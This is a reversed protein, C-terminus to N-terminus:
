FIFYKEVRRPSIKMSILLPGKNLDNYWTPCTKSEFTKKKKEKKKNWGAIAESLLQFYGNKIIDGLKGWMKPKWSIGSGKGLIM